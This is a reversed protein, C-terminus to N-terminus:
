WPLLARHGMDGRQGVSGDSNALWCIPVQLFRYSTDSTQDPDSDPSLTGDPAPQLSACLLLSPIHAPLFPRHGHAAMKSTIPAAQQPLCPLSPDFHAPSSTVWFHGLLSGFTVWFASKEVRSISQHFTRASIPARRRCLFRLAAM